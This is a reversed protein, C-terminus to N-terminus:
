KQLNKLHKHRFINVMWNVSHEEPYLIRPQFYFKGGIKLPKMGNSKAIYGANSHVSIVEEAGQGKIFPKKKKRKSAVANHANKKLVPHQMM